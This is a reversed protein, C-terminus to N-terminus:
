ESHNSYDALSFTRSRRHFATRAAPSQEVVLSYRFHHRFLIVHLQALLSKSLHQDLLIDRDGLRRIRKRHGNRVTREVASATSIAAAAGVTRPIIKARRMVGDRAFDAVFIFFLSNSSTKASTVTRTVSNTLAKITASSRLAGVHASM